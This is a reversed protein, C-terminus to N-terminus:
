EKKIRRRKRAGAGRPNGKAKRKPARAARDSLFKFYANIPCCSSLKGLVFAKEVVNKLVCSLEGNEDKINTLIESANRKEQQLAQVVKKLLYWIYVIRFQECDGKELQEVEDVYKNIAKRKAAGYKSFKTSILTKDVSVHTYRLLGIRVKQTKLLDYAASYFSRVKDKTFADVHEDPLKTLEFINHVLADECKPRKKKKEEVVIDLIKSLLKNRFLISDLKTMEEIINMYDNHLGDFKQQESEKKCENSKEKILTEPDSCKEKKIKFIKADSDIQPTSLLYKNGIKMLFGNTLGNNLTRRLEQEALKYPQGTTSVIHKLLEKETAKRDLLTSIVYNGNHM